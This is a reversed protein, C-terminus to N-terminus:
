LASRFLADANVAVGGESSAQAPLLPFVNFRFCRSVFPM